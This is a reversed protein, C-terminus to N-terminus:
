GRIWEGTHPDVSPAPPPPADWPHEVAPAPDEARATLVADPGIRTVADARGDHDLDTALVLEDSIEAVATDAVGDLDSDVTPGGLVPAGPVLEGTLMVPGSAVGPVEPHAVPDPVTVDPTAAFDSM